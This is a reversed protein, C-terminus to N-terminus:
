TAMAPHLHAAVVFAIRGDEGAGVVAPAVAGVSLQNAHREEALGIM